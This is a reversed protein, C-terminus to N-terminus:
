NLCWGIALVACGASDAIAVKKIAHSHHPTTFAILVFSLMAILAILSVEIAATKTWASYYCAASLLGFLVARHRLLTLVVHDNSDIQYLAALKATSLGSIAPITHLLGVMILAIQLSLSM